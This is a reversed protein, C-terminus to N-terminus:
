NVPTLLAKGSLAAELNDLMLQGMAGRTEPTASAQHPQLLVNDTMEILAQPVNPEDAYVDLGAAGVRGDRLASILAEEDVVSGRAVNILIGDPGLADLVEANILKETSPGGPTIVILCDSDRALDILNRYYDYPVDRPNRAHYGIRLKFPVAREAIASGIRGLGVIGLRKGSLSQTFPMGGSLWRGERVFRDAQAMRRATAILLGMAFDAVEDTLVDPTNTVKVGRASAMEVDVGDYGVGFSAVIKLEPLAEIVDAPAVMETAIAECTGALSALLGPKDAAEWYRHVTYRRELEAMTGEYMPKVVLVDPKDNM